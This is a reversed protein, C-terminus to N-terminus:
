GTTTQQETTTWISQTRYGYQAANQPPGYYVSNQPLGSLLLASQQLPGYLVNTGVPTNHTMGYQAISQPREYEM